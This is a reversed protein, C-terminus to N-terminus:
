HPHAENSSGGTLDQGNPNAVTALRGEDQQMRGRLLQDVVPRVEGHPRTDLVKLIYDLVQASFEFRYTPENM